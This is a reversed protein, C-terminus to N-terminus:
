SYLSSSQFDPSSTIELNGRHDMRMRPTKRMTTAKPTEYKSKVAEFHNISKYPTRGASTGYRARSVLLQRSISTGCGKPFKHYTRPTQISICSLSLARRLILRM